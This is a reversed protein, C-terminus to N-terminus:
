YKFNKEVTINFDKAGIDFIHDREDEYNLILVQDKLYPNLWIGYHVTESLVVSSEMVLNTLAGPVDRM